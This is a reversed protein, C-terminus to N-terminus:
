VVSCLICSYNFFFVKIELDDVKDTGKDPTASGGEGGFALNFLTPGYKLGLSIVTTLLSGGDGQRDEPFSYYGPIGMSRSSDTAAQLRQLFLM